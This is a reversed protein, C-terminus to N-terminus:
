NFSEETLNIDLTIDYKVILNIVEEVVDWDEDLYATRLMDLIEQYDLGNEM